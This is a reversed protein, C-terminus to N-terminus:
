GQNSSQLPCEAGPTRQTARLIAPPCSPARFSCRGKEDAAEQVPIRKAQGLSAVDKNALGMGHGKGDRSGVAMAPVSWIAGTVSTACGTPFSPKSGALVLVM